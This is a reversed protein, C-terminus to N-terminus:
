TMLEVAAVLAAISASARKLEAIWTLRVEPELKGMTLAIVSADEMISGIRTCLLNILEDNEDDMSVHRESGAEFDM